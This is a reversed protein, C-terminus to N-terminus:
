NSNIEEYIIKRKDRGLYEFKMWIVDKPLIKKVREAWEILVINKPQNIIEKFDLELLDESQIRYCDIHYLFDYKRMIVFTPSTIKEKIGLGKAIGQVFTTKGSGLDGELGIVIAKRDELIEKLIENALYKGVKQMEEASQIIVEKKDM